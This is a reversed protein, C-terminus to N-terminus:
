KKTEVRNISIMSHPASKKSLVTWHGINLTQEELFVYVRHAVSDYNLYKIVILTPSNYTSIIMIKYSVANVKLSTFARVKVHQM